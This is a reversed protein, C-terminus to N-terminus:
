ADGILILFRLNSMWTKIKELTQITFPRRRHAMFAYLLMWFRTLADFLRSTLSAGKQFTTHEFPCQGNPPTPPHSAPTDSTKGPHNICKKAWYPLSLICELLGKFVGCVSLRLSWKRLLCVFVCAIFQIDGGETKSSYWNQLKIKTQKEEIVCDFLAQFMKVLAELQVKLNPMSISKKKQCVSVKNYCIMMMVQIGPSYATDLLRLLDDMVTQLHAMSIHGAKLCHTTNQVVLSSLDWERMKSRKEHCSFQSALNQTM